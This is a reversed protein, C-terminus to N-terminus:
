MLMIHDLLEALINNAKKICDNVDRQCDRDIEIFGM